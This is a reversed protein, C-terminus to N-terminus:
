VREVSFIEEIESIKEMINQLHEADRINITLKIQGKKDLFTVVEAKTINGKQQAIVSTLKALVGPSDEGIILLKGSYVGKIAKDWSAEVMRQPDLIEKMVLPCRLSHVTIGKGSTIYGTIPEGKIPHCCKALKTSAGKEKKVLIVTEPKKKVKTVVRGLLSEKKAALDMEPFMKEMLRKNPIIKGFGLNAYFDDMKNMKFPVAKSIRAWMAPGKKLGPPLTYKEL